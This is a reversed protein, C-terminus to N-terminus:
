AAVLFSSLFLIELGIITLAPWFNQLISCPPCEAISEVKMLSGDTMLIKTQTAAYYLNVTDIM